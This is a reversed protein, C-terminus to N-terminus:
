LLTYVYACMADRTAVRMKEYVTEIEDEMMRMDQFTKRQIEWGSEFWADFTGKEKEGM